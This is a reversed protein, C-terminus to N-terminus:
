RELKKVISDAWRKGADGGWLLWAIYGNSPNSPNSWGKHKDKRHRSFYNHMRKVTQFSVKGRVLNSARVIGSGIGLKHAQKVTLGGRHFKKRLALGRKAALRVSKPVKLSKTLM